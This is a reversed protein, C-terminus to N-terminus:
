QRGQGRVLQSSLGIFSDRLVDSRESGAGWELLTGELRCLPRATRNPKAQATTAAHLPLLPPSVVPNPPLAVPARPKPPVLVTGEEVPPVVLGPLPPVVLKPLPPAILEAPPLESDPLPPAGTGPV